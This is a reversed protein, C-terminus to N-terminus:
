NRNEVSSILCVPITDGRTNKTMELTTIDLVVQVDHDEQKFDAKNQKVWNQIVKTQTKRRLRRAPINLRAKIGYKDDDDDDNPAILDNIVINNNKNQTNTSMSIYLSTIKNRLNKNIEGGGKYPYTKGGLLSSMVVVRAGNLM